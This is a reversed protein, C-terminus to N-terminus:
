DRKCRVSFGYARYETFNPYVGNSNINLERSGDPNFDASGISASWYNGSYGEARVDGKRHRYGPMPLKLSSALAHTSTTSDHANDTHWSNVEEEWEVNTGENTGEDGATPLRYGVPCVNNTSSESEWLTGDQTERWDRPSSSQKIFLAHTPTDSNTATSGSVSVSTAKGDKWTRLEHGDAKRGWQFLSGYAKHDTSSTAQQAPNFNGNPNTTDAYEAGLNNNLWIKGTSSKVPLYVFKHTETNGNNDAIGYM